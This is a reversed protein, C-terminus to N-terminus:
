AKLRGLVGMQQFQNYWSKSNTEPRLARMLVMDYDDIIQSKQFGYYCDVILLFCLYSKLCWFSALYSVILFTDLSIDSKHSFYSSGFISDTCPKSKRTDSDVCNEASDAPFFNRVTAFQNRWNVKSASFTSSSVIFLSKRDGGAAKTAVVSRSTTQCREEVTHNQQAFAASSVLDTKRPALSQSTSM